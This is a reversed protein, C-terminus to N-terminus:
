RIAEYVQLFGPETTIRRTGPIPYASLIYKSNEAFMTRYLAGYVGTAMRGTVGISVPVTLRSMAERYYFGEYWYSCLLNIRPNEFAGADADHRLIGRTHAVGIVATSVLYAIILGTRKM